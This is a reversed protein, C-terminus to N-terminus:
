QWKAGLLYTSADILWQKFDILSRDSKAVNCRKCCPIINTMSYGLSNDIRDLGNYTYTGNDYQTKKVNSPLAFCYGCRQSTFFIFEEETLSFELGKNQAIKRYSAFLSHKASQGEKLKYVM